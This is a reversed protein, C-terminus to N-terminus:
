KGGIIKIILNGHEPFNPDSDLRVIELDHISIYSQMHYKQEELKSDRVKRFTSVIVSEVGEIKAVAEYIKSLYVFQGFTYNDPHFFGKSGDPNIKSSMNSAVANRIDQTFFDPKVCVQLEIDLSVYIPERIEIDYGALKKDTVIEKIERSLQETLGTRGKPDITLFVTLWSGTWTFKAKAKSVKDDLPPETAVREYDEATVARPQNKTILKPAQMKAEEIRQIDIGNTAPIPNTVSEIQEIYEEPKKLLVDPGVNGRSGTGVRYSAEIKSGTIPKLGFIGNGFIITAYGEGDISVTYHKDFRGSELLNNVEKWPESDVFVQLTSVSGLGEQHIYTLPAQLLTFELRELHENGFGLQERASIDDDYSISKGYSAKVINGCLATADDLYYEHKTKDKESWEIQTLAIPHKTDPPLIIPEKSLRIVDRKTDEKILLLDGHRLNKYEGKLFTGTSGIPLICDTNDWNYVEMQNHEKFILIEDNTEFTIEDDISAVRTGKHLLAEDKATFFLYTEATLGNKLEYDILALHSKVSFRNRAAKLFAENGVRDQYYSLIDATHAFLEIIAIGLDAQSLDTWDPMKTPILDILAKRFSEYDKAMYDVSQAVEENAPDEESSLSVKKCDFEADCDIKFSFAKRAFFPDIDLGKVELLYISFDGSKDLHIVRHSTDDSDKEVSIVQVHIREGGHIVYDDADLYRDNISGFFYVDLTTQEVRVKIYKIGDGKHVPSACDIGPLM